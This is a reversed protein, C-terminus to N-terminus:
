GNCFALLNKFVSYGKFCKSLMAGIEGIVLSIADCIKEEMDRDAMLIETLGKLIKRFTPLKGKTRDKKTDERFTSNGENSVNCEENKFNEEQYPGKKKKLPTKKSSTPRHSTMSKKNNVESEVDSTDSTDQLTPERFETTQNRATLVDRYSKKGTNEFNNPLKSGQLVTQAKKEGREDPTNDNQQRYFELAKKYTLNKRSMIARIKKEKLFMPCQKDLAMHPGRCNICIFEKRDCNDHGLGCKPCKTKKTPCARILHGYKWCGSCQSVPFTYPEVKFRCGYGLIYSPLISSKFGLRVSSSPVWENKENLRRLRRMSIIESDCKFIELIEKEEMDLDIDKVVGYVVNVQNTYNCRYELEALKQCSILKEADNKNGLTVLVKYPGKYKIGLINEINQSRMLKAMAIQKPLNQSSAICVEYTEDTETSVRNKRKTKRQVTSFGDDDNKNEESSERQRKEAVRSLGVEGSLVQQDYLTSSVGADEEIDSSCMMIVNDVRSECQQVLEM